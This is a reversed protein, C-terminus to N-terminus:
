VWETSRERDTIRGTLTEERIESIHIKKIKDCDEPRFFAEQIRM